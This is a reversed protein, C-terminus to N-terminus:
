TGNHLPPIAVHSPAQYGTLVCNCQCEGRLSVHGFCLVYIGVFFFL